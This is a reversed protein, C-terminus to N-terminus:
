EAWPQRRRRGRATVAFFFACSHGFDCMHTAFIACALTCRAGYCATILKRGIYHRDMDILAYMAAKKSRFKVVCERSETRGDDKKLM